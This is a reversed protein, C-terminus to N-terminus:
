ESSDPDDGEVLFPELAAEPDPSRMAVAIAAPDAACYEQDGLTVSAPSTSVFEAALKATWCYGDELEKAYTASPTYSVNIFRDVQMIEFLYPPLACFFHTGDGDVVPGNKESALFAADVPDLPRAHAAFHVGFAISAKAAIEASSIAQQSPLEIVVEWRRVNELEGGIQEMEAQAEPTQLCAIVRRVAPSLPVDSLYGNPAIHWCLLLYVSYIAVLLQLAVRLMLGQTALLYLGCFAAIVFYAIVIWGTYRVGFWLCVSAVTLAAYAVASELRGDRIALCSFVAGAVAWLVTWVALEGGPGKM